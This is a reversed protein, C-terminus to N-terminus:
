IPRWSFQVQIQSAIETIGRIDNDFRPATALGTNEQGFIRDGTLRQEDFPLGKQPGTWRWMFGLEQTTNFDVDVFKTEISIQATPRGLEDIIRKILQINEATNTVVLRNVSNVFSIKSGTPFTVGSNTFYTQWNTEEQNIRNVGDDVLVDVDTGEGVIEIMSLPVDFFVTETEELPYNADAIYVAHKDIKVKLGMSSTVQNILEGLPMDEVSLFLKPKQSADSSVVQEASEAVGFDDDGFGDDGFGDDGFGDDVAQAEPTQPANAVILPFYIINVGKGEPDPDFEKSKRILDEVISEIGDGDYSVSPIYIRRLKEHISSTNEAEENISISNM